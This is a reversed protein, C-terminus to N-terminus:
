YKETDVTKKKKKNRGLFNIFEAWAFPNAINNAPMLGTSLRLNDQNHQQLYGARNEALSPMMGDRIQTWREYQLNQYAIVLDDESIDLDLVARKLEDVNKWPVIVVTNLRNTDRIMAQTAFFRDRKINEPIILVSKKFGVASFEVTDGGKVVLSFFGDPGSYASSRRSKNKITVFAVPEVSDNYSILTNGSFQILDSPNQSSLSIYSFLGLALYLKKM